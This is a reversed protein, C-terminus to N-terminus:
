HYTGLTPIQNIFTPIGPYQFSTTGFFLDRLNVMKAIWDNGADGNDITTLFFNNFLELVELTDAILQVEPAFIGFMRNNPLELLTPVVGECTIGFWGCYDSDTVWGDSTIWGPLPNLNPFQVDTFENSVANSAFFICSLAYYRIYQADTQASLTGELYALAKSQYSEPDEFEAGGQLAVTEILAQITSTPAATVVVPTPAPTVPAPTPDPTVPAPTDPVVPAPTVPAPTDPVVPAPTVPAPTTPVVVPAPTVPAPTPAPTVPAPTDPVVPAPTVPAPTTPVVVPAPTVPAPTDPTIPASTTPVVVPAPTIPAVVPAATPLAFGPPILVTDIVHIVGNMALINQSEVASNTNVVFASDVVTIDFTSGELSTYEGASADSVLLLNQGLVHYLLVEQLVMPNQVLFDLVDSPLKQFAENSPAFLTLPRTNKLGNGLGAILVLDVLISFDPSEEGIEFISKTVCDSLIPSTGLSHVIGNVATVDFPDSLAVGNVSPPSVGLALPDNLSNLMQGETWESTPDTFTEVIHNFLLCSTHASWQEELLDGLYDEGLTSVFATDSPAFLTHIFGTNNLVSAGNISDVLQPLWVLPPNAAETIIQYTTLDAGIPTPAVPAAVPAPAPTPSATVPSATIPAETPSATPMSGLGPNYQLLRNWFGHDEQLSVTDKKVPKGSRVHASGLAVCSLFVAVNLKMTSEKKVAFNYSLLVPSPSIFTHTTLNLEGFHPSVWIIDLCM